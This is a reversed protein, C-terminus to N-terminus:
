EEIMADYNSHTIDKLRVRAPCPVGGSAEGNKRRLRPPIAPLSLPRGVFAIAAFKEDAETLNVTSMPTLSM